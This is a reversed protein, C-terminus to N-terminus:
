RPRMPNGLEGFQLTWDNFHLSSLEPTAPGQGADGITRPSASWAETRLATRWEWDVWTSQCAASSWFLYFVDHDVIAAELRQRWNDGSRLSLVDVFVDLDPVVKLMGQIRALVDHRDETAYSAYASTIRHLQSTADVVPGQVPAVNLLFSLRAIQLGAAHICVQGGHDGAGAQEPITLIFSANGLSGGWHVVDEDLLDFDPVRLTVTLTTGRRWRSRGKPDSAQVPGCARTAHWITSCRRITRPSTHGCM